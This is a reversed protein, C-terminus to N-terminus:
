LRRVDYIFGAMYPMSDLTDQQEKLIKSKYPKGPVCHGKFYDCAEDQNCFEGCFQGCLSGPCRQSCDHGTWGPDCQCTKDDSDGLGFGFGFFDGIGQGATCKGHGSCACDDKCEDGMMHCM